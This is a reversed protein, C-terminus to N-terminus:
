DYNSSLLQFQRGPPTSMGKRGEKNQNYDNYENGQCSGSMLSESALYLTIWTSFQMFVARSICINLFLKAISFLAYSQYAVRSGTQKYVIYNFQCFRKGSSHCKNFLM